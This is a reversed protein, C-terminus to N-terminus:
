MDHAFRVLRDVFDTRSSILSQHQLSSGGVVREGNPGLRDGDVSEGDDYRVERVGDPRDSWDGGDSEDVSTRAPPSVEGVARNMAGVM